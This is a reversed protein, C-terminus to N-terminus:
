VAMRRAAHDGTSGTCLRAQDPLVRTATSVLVHKEEFPGYQWVSRVASRAGPAAIRRRWLRTQSRCINSRDIMTFCSTAMVQGFELMSHLWWAVGVGDWPLPVDVCRADIATCRTMDRGLQNDFFAVLTDENPLGDRRFLSERGPTRHEYTRRCRYAAFRLLRARVGRDKRLLDCRTHPAASEVCPRRKACM